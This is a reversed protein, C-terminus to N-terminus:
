DSHSQLESTHEESRIRGAIRRKVRQRIRRRLGADDSRKLEVTQIPLPGDVPLKHVAAEARASRWRATERLVEPERHLLIANLMPHQSIGRSIPSMWHVNM